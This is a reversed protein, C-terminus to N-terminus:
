RGLSMSGHLNIMFAQQEQHHASFLARKIYHLIYVDKLNLTNRKHVPVNVISLCETKRHINYIANVVAVESYAEQFIYTSLGQKFGELSTHQPREKPPSNWVQPACVSYARGGTMKM